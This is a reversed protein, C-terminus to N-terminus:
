RGKAKKSKFVSKAKKKMEDREAEKASSRAEAEARRTSMGTAELEARRMAGKSQLISAKARFAEFHSKLMTANRKAKALRDKIATFKPSGEVQQKVKWEALKPDKKLIAEGYSARWTRYHADASMLEEEAMAWLEGVRSMYAAVQDMDLDIDGVKATSHDVVVKEGMVELTTKGQGSIM